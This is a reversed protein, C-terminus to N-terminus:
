TAEVVTNTTIFNGSGAYETGGVDSVPPTGPIVAPSVVTFTADFTTGMLILPTGNNDTSSAVQDSGLGSITLIGAGPTVHGATTVYAGGPVVVSAEDGEVCVSAGNVDATGTGIIVGPAVTVNAIGFTPLFMATDGNVVVFDAM